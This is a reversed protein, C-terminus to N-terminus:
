ENSDGEAAARRSETLTARDLAVLAEGWERILSYLKQGPTERLTVSSKADSPAVAGRAVLQDSLRRWLEHEHRAALRTLQDMNM